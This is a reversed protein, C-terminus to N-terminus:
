GTAMDQRVVVATFRLSTGKTYSNVNKLSGQKEDHMDFIGVV